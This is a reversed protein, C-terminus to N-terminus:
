RCVYIIVRMADLVSVLGGFVLCFVVLDFFGAVLSAMGLERELIVKGLSGLNLFSGRGLNDLFCSIMRVRESRAIMM